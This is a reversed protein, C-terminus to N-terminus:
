RTDDGHREARVAKDLLALGVEGIWEEQPKAGYGRAYAAAIEQERAERLVRALGARLADSRSAFMGRAVAADLAQLEEDNLRTQVPTSMGHSYRINM